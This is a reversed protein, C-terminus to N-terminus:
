NYPASLFHSLTCYLLHQSIFHLYSFKLSTLTVLIHLRALLREVLLDGEVITSTHVKNIYLHVTVSICVHRCQGVAGDIM